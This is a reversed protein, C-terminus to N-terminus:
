QSYPQFDSGMSITCFEGTPSTMSMIWTGTDQNVMFLMPGELVISQQEITSDVGAYGVFLPMEQYEDTISFFDQPTYCYLDTNYVSTPVVEQAHTLTAAFILIPLALLKM